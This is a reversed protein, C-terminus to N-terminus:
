KYKRVRERPDMWATSVEEMVVIAEETVVTEELVVTEEIVGREDIEDPVGLYLYSRFSSCRTGDKRQRCWRGVGFSLAIRLKYRIGGCQAAHM